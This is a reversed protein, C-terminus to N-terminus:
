VLVERGPPCSDPGILRLASAGDERVPAGVRDPAVVAAVAARARRTLSVTERTSGHDAIFIDNRMETARPMAPTTMTATSHIIREPM